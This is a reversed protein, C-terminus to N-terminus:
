NKVFLIIYKEFNEFDWFKNILDLSEALGRVIKMSKWQNGNIEM